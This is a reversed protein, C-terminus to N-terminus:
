ENKKVEPPAVLEVKMRNPDECYLAYCDQGGAHPHLSEYLVTFGSTKVWATIEDVQVKSAAHFALHNLGIRKRHYGFEFHEKGVQVFVIYTGALSYSSGHEWRQSEVYGLKTLFPEWFRLSEELAAVYLEVHHLTGPAHM